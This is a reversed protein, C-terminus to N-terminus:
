CTAEKSSRQAMGDFGRERRAKMSALIAREHRWASALAGWRFCHTTAYGGCDCKVYWGGGEGAVMDVFHGSSLAKSM